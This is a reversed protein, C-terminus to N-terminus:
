FAVINTISFSLFTLTIGYKKAFPRPIKRSKVLFFLFVVVLPLVVDSCERFFSFRFSFVSTSRFFDDTFLVIMPDTEANKAARVIM